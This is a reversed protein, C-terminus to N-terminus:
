DKLCRVQFANAPSSEYLSVSQNYNNLGRAVPKSGALTSTWYMTGSIAEAETYFWFSNLYRLGNLIGHFGPTSYIDKLVGGAIGSGLSADLLQQWETSSPLHWGPPCLGQIAPSSNYAMLENWQYYSHRIGATLNRSYKEVICNDTQYGNESIQSGYDLSAAMWCQSGIAYTSYSKNDRIDILNQGCTFSPTGAVSITLSDRNNCNHMNRYNYYLRHTGAGAQFPYFIGTITDIGTGSYWGGYPTGGKLQIPQAGSITNMDFCAPLEVVALPKVTVVTGSITGPCGNATPLVTYTVTEFLQGLNQLKQIIQNGIGNSYGGVQPSSGAATWSYITGAVPSSLSLSTYTNGCITQTVPTFIVPPIPFVTANLDTSVGTCGNVSPIVHYTASETNVGSNFLTQSIVGGADPYFGYIDSSSGTATWSFTAGSINATLLISTTAASCIADANPDNTVGPLPKVQATFDTTNGICGANDPTITYMVSGETLGTNLLLDNIVPGNGPGFGTVAGMILSATWTFTTGPQNAMLTINTTGGSCISKTLPFNTVAPPPLLTLLMEDHVVTCPDLGTADISLTVSGATIDLIGPTYVPNLLSTDSFTGDGSTNWDIGVSNLATAGTIFLTSQECIERDPGASAVLQPTFSLRIVDIDTGCLGPVTMTLNVFGATVDAASPAYIPNQLTADNFTGTGSTSWLFSLPNLAFADAIHYPPGGCLTSDSGAFAIAAPLVIVRMTDRSICNGPRTTLLTYYITDPATLVDNYLFVPDSVNYTSLYNSPVWTYTYGTIATTGISAPVQECVSIESGANFIRISSVPMVVDGCICGNFPLRMAALMSCIKVAPVTFTASASVSDGPLLGTVNVIQRYLSDAGTEEAIGNGNADHVFYINASTSQLTDSGTNVIHYNVTVTEGATGDPISTATYSGFGAEDKIVPKQTIISSTISQILCNGGPATLCNVQAVLLTTTELSVTDCVLGAPDIDHLEFTFVISDNVALNPQISFNIYRIGGIVQNSAVGSPGNHIGILSNPVYDFADDINVGLKEIQSVSSPGLNIVKIKIQSPDSCTPLNGPVATNIVYLNVNTPLGNILIPDTNSTREQIDGCANAASATMSLSTGSTFNCNTTLRFRIKYGNKPISDSGKIVDIGNPDTSINYVWKNSGAPQNVPNNLLEWSGTTYPYRIESFGNDISTGPPLAVIFKLDYGYALQSNTVQAEYELTNCLDVPNVPSTIALNLSIEKPDLYLWKTNQVCMYGSPAYGLDPSLPYGACNYGHKVLLSDFSCTTYIATIRITRCGNGSFSGLQAWYRGPGYSALLIDVPAAPITIDTVKVVQIGNNGSEFGLWNNNAVFTRSNCLSVTWNVSDQRGEATGVLTTLSMLPATYTIGKTASATQYLGTGDAYIKKRGRVDMGYTFDGTAKCSPTASFRVIDYDIYCDYYDSYNWAATRLYMLRTGTPGMTIVPDAINENLANGNDNYYRHISSAPQYAFGEPLTFFITDIAFMPRVENPFGIDGGCIDFTRNILGEYLFTSCGQMIIQQYNTGAAFNYNNGLVNFTYGKENCAAEKNAEKLFFSARLGPVARWEQQAINKVRGYVVYYLSDGNTFTVGSLCGGPATLNGFYTYLTSLTGNTVQPSLNTCTYWTSNEINYFRLTDTLVDFFLQNGWSGGIANHKLKFFLSDTNSNIGGAAAIRITDQTTANDLRVGPTTPMVRTTCRNNTWGLTHRTVKFLSINPEPCNGLPCQFGFLPSDGCWYTFFRNKFATKDCWYKLEAHISATVSHNIDCDAVVPVRFLGGSLIRSKNLIFRLTDGSVIPAGMSVGKFTATYPLYPQVGPPLIVKYVVSDNPCGENNLATTTNVTQEFWVPVGDDIDAPFLVQATNTNYTMFQNVTPNAIWNVGSAVDCQNKFNYGFRFGQWASNTWGAGCTNGTPITSAAQSWSYYTHARIIFSAGAPLDDYFGDGDADTLGTGSGDPDFTYMLRTYFAFQGNAAGTAYNYGALQAYSNVSFSDIKNIWNGNPYYTSGGSSFGALVVVNYATGGTGTGTNSVTFETYGRNDIFGWSRRNATFTINIGPSGAPVNITAYATNFSCYQQYCGWTAKLTSQGNTCGVLKVTETIILSEGADFQGNGGPLDSGTIIITDTRLPGAGVYPHLSGINVALIQIDATHQDLIVLTDTSGNAGQQLITIDRDVTFNLPISVPNNTISTIVPEPYYFNQLPTDSGSYNTSNYTVTYVFNTTNTYGCALGALYTVEHATNNLIDPLNFVPQNLNTINLEAAGTASGPTYRVGPPLDLTLTAGSMTGGTTNAVQLSFLGDNGCIVLSLPKGTPSVMIQAIGQISLFALFLGTLLLRFPNKTTVM